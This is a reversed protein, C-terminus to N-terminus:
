RIKQRLLRLFNSAPGQVIIREFDSYNAQYFNVLFNVGIKEDFTKKM